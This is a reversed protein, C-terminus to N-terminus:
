ESGEEFDDLQSQNEDSDDEEFSIREPRHDVQFVPHPEDHEEEWEEIEEKTVTDGESYDSSDSM